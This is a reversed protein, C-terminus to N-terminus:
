IAKRERVEDPRKFKRGRRKESELVANNYFAIEEEPTMNRTQERLKIRIEHVERVARPENMM